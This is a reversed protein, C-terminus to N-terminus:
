DLDESHKLRRDGRDTLIEVGEETVLLTHEFQASLSRDQTLVTWRDPMLEVKWGGANIMPEITFVWGPAFRPDPGRGRKCFHSVQPPEHFQKGIGHGVYDRVVSCGEAKAREEIACGIDSLRKGPAVAAIGLDLCTRAVETVHRAKASPEGVYFTASTDGHFGDLTVTVDINIIDGDALKEKCPIGHCVVENVSTCVSKPYGHYNLPSPYAGHDVIYKHVAENIELTSVGVEVLDAAHLLTDAALRGASRCKEIESSNKIRVKAV